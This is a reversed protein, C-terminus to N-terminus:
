EDAFEEVRWPRGPETRAALHGVPLARLPGLEDPFEDFLHHAHTAILHDVDVPTGDLFQWSGDRNHAVLRLPESGDLVRTSVISLREM